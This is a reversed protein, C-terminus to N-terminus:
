GGAALEAISARLEEIGEGKVSSTLIVEPHAAVNKQIAARTKELIKEREAKKMKDAKTLIVQYSVASKDMLDMIERDSDKIGHRADVLVFARRLNTRGQLYSKLLKTWEKVLSKSVKAYGYGPLDSLYLGLGDRKGLFFFNIQQTRGPTNSTRALSNRGTLANLLSSKGVNSRGAFSIEVADDPPLQDLGAVGLLFECEQAFLLRGKELRKEAAEDAENLEDSV